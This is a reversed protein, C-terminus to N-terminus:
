KVTLMLKHLETLQEQQLIKMQVASYAIFTNAAAGAPIVSLVDGPNVLAFTDNTTTQAQASM